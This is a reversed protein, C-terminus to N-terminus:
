QQLPNYVENLLRFDLDDLKKHLCSDTIRVASTKLSVVYHRRGVHFRNDLYLVWEPRGDIM